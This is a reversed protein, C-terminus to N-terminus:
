RSNSPAPPLYPLHWGRDLEWYSEVHGNANVIRLTPVPDSISALYSAGIEIRSRYEQTFTVVDRWAGSVNLQLKMKDM